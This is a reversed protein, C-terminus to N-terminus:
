NHLLNQIAKQLDGETLRLQEIAKIKDLDFNQELFKVDADNLKILVKKEEKLNSLANEVKLEQEEVYDTVKDLNKNATETQKSM